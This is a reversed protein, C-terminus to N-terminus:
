DSGIRIRNKILKYVADLKKRTKETPKLELSKAWAALAEFYLSFRCYVEGLHEYIEADRELSAAKELLIKAKKLKGLKFYVWGLSDLYAGNNPELKIAKKVLREAEKLNVGEEAYLYGLYNLAPGNDPNLRIAEKLHSITKEKQKEKDLIVALYFHTTSNNELSLAKELFAKASDLREEDFYILALSCYVQWNKIGVELAKELVKKAEEKRETELYLRALQQYILPNKQKNRLVAQYQVIAETYKKQKEYILALALHAKVFDPQIETARRLEKEGVDSNGANELLLGYNYHVLANEPFFAIIKEYLVIAKQLNGEKTYLDSLILYSSSDDPFLHILKEYQKIALSREKGTLYLLALGQLARKNKADNKLASQFFRKAKKLSGTKLYAIGLKTRIEASSPDSRLAKQYYPIAEKAKGESEYLLGQCYLKRAADENLYTKSVACGSLLILSCILLKSKM